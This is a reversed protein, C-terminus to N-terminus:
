RTTRADRAIEADPRRVYLPRIDDAAPRSGAALAATARRAIAGALSPTLEPAMWARDGLAEHIAAIQNAVGDGIFRVVGGPARDPGTSLRHLIDQPREVTVAEIETVGDYLAAYVEGRWADIWTATQLAPGTPRTAVLASDGKSVTAGAPRLHGQRAAGEAAMTALADLASIGVLPKGADFALGQMTAIGVRLGTFSGPGVAVAFADVDRLALGAGSLLAQLEGPVRTAQPRSADSALELVVRGDIAV